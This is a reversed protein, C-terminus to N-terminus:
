QYSPRFPPSFPSSKFVFIQKMSKFNAEMRRRKKQSQDTFRATKLSPVVRFSIPARRLESQTYPGEGHGNIALTLSTASLNPAANHCASSSHLGTLIAASPANEERKDFQAFKYNLVQKRHKPIGDAVLPQHEILPESLLEIQQQATALFDMDKGIITPRDARLNM